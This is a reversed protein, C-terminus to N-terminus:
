MQQFEVMMDVLIHKLNLTDESCLKYLGSIHQDKDLFKHILHESHLSLGYGLKCNNPQYYQLDM